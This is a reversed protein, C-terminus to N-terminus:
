EHKERNQGRYEKPSCHYNEQFQRYFYSSNNYGIAELIAEVPLPTAGLLYAAQQLKRHQLLEKFNHGTYRKLLRSIFYTPQELEASIQALTGDKFHTEIYKLVVFVTNQEQQQPTNQNLREAYTSLNLFLLGMTTQMMTNTKTRRDILTWIMNEILNEVPVIEAAQIHLYSSCPSKESLTFILFDRLLNERELMSLPSSFFEPLVMFNVAIDGAGAPLIEHYVYQNFFLLDGANLTIKETHNIIHTTSGTCMYVIEVYNHRHCPFHAFRTHTRIEILQGKKLMKESDVVFEARSTYLEQCITQNEEM